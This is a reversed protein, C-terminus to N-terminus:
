VDEDFSRLIGKIKTGVRAWTWGDKWGSSIKEKNIESRRTLFRLWNQAESPGTLWVVRPRLLSSAFPLTGSM